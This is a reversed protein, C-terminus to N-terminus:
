RTTTEQHLAVIALEGDHTLHAEYEGTPGPPASLQSAATHHPCAFLDGLRCRLPHRMIWGGQDVKIVHPEDQPARQAALRVLDDATLRAVDQAHDDQDSDETPAALVVVWRGHRNAPDALWDDLDIDFGEFLPTPGDPREAVVRALVATPIAEAIAAGDGVVTHHVCYPDNLKRSTYAEDCTCPNLDGLRADIAAALEGLATM